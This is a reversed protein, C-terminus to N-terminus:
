SREPRRASVFRAVGELDRHACAAELGAAGLLALVAESQDHHHELLLVGGPALASPAGALIRRIAELGDQGGDLALWPEHDRVVPDLRQLEASPIYPPNSVALQLRGWHDRVPEWWDGRRLQLRPPSAPAQPPPGPPPPPQTSPAQGSRAQGALPRASLCQTPPPEAAQPAAALPGASREAPLPEPPLSGVTIAGPPPVAATSAALAALNAAAQRLAERSADVALGESGPLARLLALALCGSGTGLDVWRLPEGAAAAPTLRLALDVLLETEQRPILVGPAVALRLDRWPCLGVLYQLPEQTQQHRQWLSELEALPRSLRVPRQPHLWLEQRQRWSLGGGLELLWDLAAAQNGEAVTTALLRRRWALLQTAPILPL